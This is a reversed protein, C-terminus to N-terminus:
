LNRFDVLEQFVTFKNQDTNKQIIIIKNAIKFYTTVEKGSYNADHVWFRLYEDM